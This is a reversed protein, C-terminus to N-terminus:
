QSVRAEAACKEVGKHGVLIRLPLDSILNDYTKNTFSISGFGSTWKMKLPKRV